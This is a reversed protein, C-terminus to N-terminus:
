IVHWSRTIGEIKPKARKEFCGFKSCSREWMPFVRFMGHGGGHNETHDTLNDILQRRKVGNIFSSVTMQKTAGGISLCEKKYRQMFSRLDEDEKQKINQLEVPDRTYWKQQMFTALFRQSLDKFSDVNGVQPNHVMLSYPRGSDTFVYPVM